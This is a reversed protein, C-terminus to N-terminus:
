GPMGTEMAFIASELEQERPTGILDIPRCQFSKNFDTMWKLVFAPQVISALRKQIADIQEWIGVPKDEVLKVGQQGILEITFYTADADDSSRLFRKPMTRIATGIAQERAGPKDSYEVEFECAVMVTIREKM